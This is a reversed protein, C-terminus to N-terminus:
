TRDYLGPEMGKADDRDGDILIIRLYFWRICVAEVFIDLACFDQEESHPFELKVSVFSFDNKSQPYVLLRWKYNFIKLDTSTEPKNTM